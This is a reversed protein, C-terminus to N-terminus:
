KCCLREVVSLQQLRRNPQGETFETILHTIIKEGSDLGRYDLFYLPKCIINSFLYYSLAAGLVMRPKRDAIQDLGLPERGNNDIKMFDKYQISFATKSARGATSEADYMETDREEPRIEPLHSVAHQRDWSQCAKDFTALKAGIGKDSDISWSSKDVRNFDKEQIDRRWQELVRKESLLYANENQSRELEKESARLGGKFDKCQQKWYAADEELRRLQQVARKIQRDACDCERGTTREDPNHGQRQIHLKSEAGPHVEEKEAAGGSFSLVGKTRHIIGQKPEKKPADSQSLEDTVITFWQQPL